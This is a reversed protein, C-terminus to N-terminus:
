IRGAGIDALFDGRSLLWINPLLIRREHSLAQYGVGLGAKSSMSTLFAAFDLMDLPQFSLRLWPRRHIRAEVGTAQSSGAAGQEQGERLVDKGTLSTRQGAGSLVM